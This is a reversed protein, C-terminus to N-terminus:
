HSLETWKLNHKKLLDIAYPIPVVISIGSNDTFGAPVSLDLAPIVEYLKSRLQTGHWLLRQFRDRDDLARPFRKFM